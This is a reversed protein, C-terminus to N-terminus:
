RLKKSEQFLIKKEDETLSQYGGESLKDLIADIREQADKEQNEMEKKYDTLHLDEYKADAVDEKKKNTGNTNVPHMYSSRKNSSTYSTFKNKLDMNGFLGTGSGKYMIMLYVFGVIGGGLHAMHAIGTDSGGAVAFIEILM